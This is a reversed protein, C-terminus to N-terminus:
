TAPPPHPIFNALSQHQLDLTQVVSAKYDEESTEKIEFPTSPGNSMSRGSLLNPTVPSQSADSWSRCVLNPSLGKRFWEFSNHVCAATSANAANKEIVNRALSLPKPRHMISLLGSHMHAHGSIPLLLKHSQKPNRLQNSADQWPNHESHDGGTHFTDSHGGSNYAVDHSM